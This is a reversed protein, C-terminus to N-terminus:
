PTFETFVVCGNVGGFGFSNSLVTRVDAKRAENPVYDLDCGPDPHDLNTTPPIVKRNIVLVSVIAEIGSAAGLLHGTMSKTSSIPIRYADEGFVRKIAETEAQDNSKTSTGHANIYGIQGPELGASLLARKMCRAAGEGGPAPATVHYADATEGYGALEAYIRAGRALAHEASELVLVGAGEGMVFGDRGLDFPRSAGTPEDNRTSLAKLGNFGSIGMPTIGAETGGALMATAEGLMIMRAASALSNNGSACATVVCANPGKLGYTMSVHGPAMNVLLRPMYFPSIKRPGKKLLANHFEEITSLGGIGSGIVVGFSEALEPTVEIGSDALAMGSAGVALQVFRDTKKLQKRDLFDGPSFDLAEGAITTEFGTTDFSTISGIGSAGRVLAEWMKETGTGVPSVAGLGTVVVRHLSREPDKRVGM